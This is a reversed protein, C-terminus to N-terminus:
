DILYKKVRDMNM